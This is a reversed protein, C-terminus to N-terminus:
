PLSRRFVAGPIRRFRRAAPLMGALVEDRRIFPHYLAASLHLGVLALLALAIWGHLQFIRKSLPTNKGLWPPLLISGLVTVRDGALLSGVIGLSPQLLLLGYLAAVSTKAGLRQATPIDAPLPPVSSRLRWALRAITLLLVTLGFSRHLMALVGATAEGVHDILWIAVYPGLLLAATLWHLARMSAPYGPEADAQKAFDRDPKIGRGHGPVALAPLDHTRTM